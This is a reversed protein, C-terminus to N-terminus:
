RAHNRRRRREHRATLIDGNPENDLVAQELHDHTHHVYVATTDISANGM